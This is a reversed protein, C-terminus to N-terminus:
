VLNLKTVIIVRVAQDFASCVALGLKDPSWDFSSIPQTSVITNQLLQLSGMVGM